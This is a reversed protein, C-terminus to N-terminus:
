IRFNVEISSAPKIVPYDYAIFYGGADNMHDNNQTKDPEGNDAWVQQELCDAYNPCKDINVLYDRNGDNDCFARNMALIREKVFPNKSNAAVRFGAEELIAIDTKSANISKRSGGSADPYVIISVGDYRSKITKIVDPTDYGNSIEDIAVPRGKDKVHIVAAMKGVNFDMGIYVPEKGDWVRNTNNYKRNFSSYITGSTLNVFEGMLYAEILQEPYTDRMSKIYGNPLHPNSATPAQIIKYGEKPSKKWAKYVFKFGEPTTTVGITNPMGDPKFQRNRSQIRRWVDEADNIKLTDLEDVDADAHEYGIIRSPTDMSRFFIKGANEIEIYNLPSKYLKYPINLESLAEEFRPFAIMRVLDYTPEYFGRNLTPYQLKGIIARKIAAETKGAGFGAVMAPFLDNSTIYDFQPKTPKIQM